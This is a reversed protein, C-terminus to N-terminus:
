SLKESGIWCDRAKGKARNEGVIKGDPTPTHDENGLSLRTPGHVALSHLAPLHDSKGQHIGLTGDVVRRTIHNRDLAWRASVLSTIVREFDPSVALWRRDSRWEEDAEVLRTGILASVCICVLMAIVPQNPDTGVLDGYGAAGVENVLEHESESAALKLAIAAPVGDPRLAIRVFYACKLALVSFFKIAEVVDVDCQCLGRFDRLDPQVAQLQYSAIGWAGM